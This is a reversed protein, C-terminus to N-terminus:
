KLSELADSLWTSHTFIPKIKDSIFKFHKWHKPEKESPLQVAGDKNTLFLYENYDKFIVLM